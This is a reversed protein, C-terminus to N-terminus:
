VRVSKGGMEAVRGQLERAQAFKVQFSSPPLSLSIFQKNSGMRQTKTYRSPSALSLEIFEPV